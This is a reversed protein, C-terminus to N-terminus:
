GIWVETGVPVRDFLEVVDRNAMRICGHSVPQGLMNEHNTGHIYIYRSFTTNNSPGVGELWLLRSLILDGVDDRSQNPSWIAETWKRSKLIACMPLGDGIKKAIRHKGSPTRGSGPESGIGNAATSIVFARIEKEQGDVSSLLVMKQAAIDVSLRLQECFFGNTM